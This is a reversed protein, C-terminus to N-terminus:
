SPHVDVRMITPTTAHAHSCARMHTCTRARARALSEVVVQLDVRSSQVSSVDDLVLDEEEDM